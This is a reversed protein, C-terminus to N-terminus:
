LYSAFGTCHIIETRCTQGLTPGVQAGEGEVQDAEVDQNVQDVQAVQDVQDVQGVQGVQDVQDVKGVQDAANRSTLVPCM